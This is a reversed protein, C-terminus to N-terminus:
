RAVKKGKKPKSPSLVLTASVITPTPQIGQALEQAAYLRRFVPRCPLNVYPLATAFVENEFTWVKFAKGKAM